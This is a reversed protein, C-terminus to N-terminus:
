RGLYAFAVFLFGTLLAYQVSRNRTLEGTMRAGTFLAIGLFITALIAGAYWGAPPWYNLAWTAEALLLAGLLGYAIRRIPYTDIGDHIQVLLLMSTVFILPASYLTRMRFQFLLAMVLFAVWITLAVQAIRAIGPGRPSAASLSERVILSAFVGTGALLVAAAIEQWRNHRAVLLLSGVVILSPLIWATAMAPVVSDGLYRSRRAALAERIREARQSIVGVFVAAGITLIYFLRADASIVPVNTPDPPDSRVAVGMLLTVFAAVIAVRAAGAPSPVLVDNSFGEESQREMM